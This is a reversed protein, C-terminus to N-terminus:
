VIGNKLVGLMGVKIKDYLVNFYYLGFGDRNEGMERMERGWDSCGGAGVVVVVVFFGLFAVLSLCVM